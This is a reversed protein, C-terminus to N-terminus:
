IPKAIRKVCDGHSRNQLYQMERFSNTKISGGMLKDNKEAKVLFFYIRVTLDDQTKKSQCLM